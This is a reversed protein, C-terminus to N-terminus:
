TEVILCWALQFILEYLWFIWSFFTGFPSFLVKCAVPMSNLNSILVSSDRFMRWSPWCLLRRGGKEIRRDVDLLLCVLGLRTSCFNSHEDLPFADDNVTPITQWIDNIPRLVGRGVNCWINLTTWHSTMDVLWNIRIPMFSVVRWTLFRCRLKPTAGLSALPASPNLETIWTGEPLAPQSVGDRGPMREHYPQNGLKRLGPHSKIQYGKDRCQWWLDSSCLKAKHFRNIIEAM